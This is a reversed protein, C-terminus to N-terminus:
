LLNFAPCYFILIFVWERVRKFFDAFDDDVLSRRDLYGFGLYVDALRIRQKVFDEAFELLARVLLGLQEVCVVTASVECLCMFVQLFDLQIM